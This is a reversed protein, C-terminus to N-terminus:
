ASLRAYYLDFEECLKCKLTRQSIKLNIQNGAMLCSLEHATATKVIMIRFKLGLMGITAIDELLTNKAIFDTDNREREKPQIVYAYKIAICEYYKWMDIYKYMHLTKKYHEDNM